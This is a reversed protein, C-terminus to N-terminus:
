ETILGKTEISVQKEIVITNNITAKIYNTKIAKNWAALLLTETERKHNGKRQYIYSKEHSIEVTQQM